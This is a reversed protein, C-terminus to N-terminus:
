VSTIGNVLAALGNHLCTLSRTLPPRRWQQYAAPAAALDFHVHCDILGPMVFAGHLPVVEAEDGVRGDLEGIVDGHVALTGFPQPTLADGVLAIGDRLVLTAPNM